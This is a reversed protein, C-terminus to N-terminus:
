GEGPDFCLKANMGANHIVLQSLLLSQFEMFIEIFRYLRHINWLRCIAGAAEKYWFWFIGTQSSSSSFMDLIFYKWWM